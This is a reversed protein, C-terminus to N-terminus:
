KAFPIDGGRDKDHTLLTTFFGVTSIAFLSYLFSESGIISWGILVVMSDIAFILKGVNFGLSKGILQALLDTGGTASDARLMLGIGVGVFAGGTFASLLPSINYLDHWEDFFDIMFSSLWLGHISNYFLSRDKFYAILYLPISLLIITLGSKFGFWYHFILGIGIMGGDLFQHPVFFLNIGIGILISGAVLILFGRVM